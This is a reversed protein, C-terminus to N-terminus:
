VPSSLVFRRLRLDSSRKCRDVLRSISIVLDAQIRLRSIGYEDFPQTSSSNKTEEKILPETKIDETKITDSAIGAPRYVALLEVSGPLAGDGDGGPTSAFLPVMSNMSAKWLATHIEAFYALALELIASARSDSMADNLAMAESTIGCLEVALVCRNVVGSHAITVAGCALYFCDIAGSPPRSCPAPM